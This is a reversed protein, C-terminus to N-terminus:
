RKDLFAEQNQWHNHLYGVATHLPLMMYLVTECVSVILRGLSCVCGVTLQLYLLRGVPGVTQRIEARASKDCRHM